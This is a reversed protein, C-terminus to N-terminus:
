RKLLRALPNKSSRRRLLARQEQIGRVLVFAVFLAYGLGIMFALSRNITDRSTM